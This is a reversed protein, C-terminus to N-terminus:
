VKPTPSLSELSKSLCGPALQYNTESIVNKGIPAKLQTIPHLAESYHGFVLELGLEAQFKSNILYHDGFFPEVM